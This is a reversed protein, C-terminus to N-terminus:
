EQPPAPVVKFGLGKAAELDKKAILFGNLDGKDVGCMQIRMMGDHLKRKAFIKINATALETEVKDIAIGRAKECSKAEDSKGVWVMETDSVPTTPATQTSPAKKSMALAAPIMFAMALLAPLILIKTMSVIKVRNNTIELAQMEPAPSTSSLRLIELRDRLEAPYLMQRRLLPDCTRTRGPDGNEFRVM